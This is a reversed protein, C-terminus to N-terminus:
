LHIKIEVKAHLNDNPVIKLISESNRGVYGIKDPKLDFIKGSIPAKIEQYKLLVSARTLDQQLELVKKDQQLAQLQSVAGEEVLLKFKESIKEEINIRKKINEKRSLSEETDLLVISDGEEVTDGEQILISSIVGDIPMQVDITKSVPELKGEAVIIEETQAVALWTIGFGTGAILSWTISKAWAKSQTLVSEEQNSKVSRELYDQLKQIYIKRESFNFIKKLKLWNKNLFNM